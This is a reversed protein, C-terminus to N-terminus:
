RRLLMRIGAVVLIIVALLATLVPNLMASFVLLVAAAIVLSNDRDIKNM